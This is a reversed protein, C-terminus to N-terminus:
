TSARVLNRALGYCDAGSRWLPMSKLVVKYKSHFFQPPRLYILYPIYSAAWPLPGELMFTTNRLSEWKIYKIRQKTGTTRLEWRERHKVAGTCYETSSQCLHIPIYRNDWACLAMRGNQKAFCWLQDAPLYWWRWEQYLYQCFLFRLCCWHDLPIILRQWRSSRPEIGRQHM